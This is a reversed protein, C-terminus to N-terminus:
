LHFYFSTQVYIVANTVAQARREGWPRKFFFFFAFILWPFSKNEARASEVGAWKVECSSQASKETKAWVSDVM